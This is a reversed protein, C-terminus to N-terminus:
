GGAAFSIRDVRYNTSTVNDIYLDGNTAVHFLDGSRNFKPRSSKAGVTGGDHGKGYFEFTDFVKHAVNDAGVRAIAMPGGWKDIAAREGNIDYRYQFYLNGRADAGRLVISKVPQLRSLDIIRTTSQNPKPWTKLLVATRYDGSVATRLQSYVVGERTAIVSTDTGQFGDQGRTAQDIVDYTALVRGDRDFHFMTDYNDYVFVGGNKDPFLGAIRGFGNRKMGGMLPPSTPAPKSKGRGMSWLVSGNAKVKFLSAAKYDTDMWFNGDSAVALQWVWVARIGVKIQRLLQNNPTFVHLTKFDDLFYINSVDDVARPRLRFLRYDAGEYQSDSQQKVTGAGTGIPVDVLTTITSAPMSGGKPGALLWWAFWIILLPLSLLLANRLLSPNKM